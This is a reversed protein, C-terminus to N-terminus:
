YVKKAACVHTCKMFIRVTYVSFGCKNGKLHMIEFHINKTTWKVTQLRISLSHFWILSSRYTFYIFSITWITTQAFTHNYAVAKSKFTPLCKIDCCTHTTIGLVKNVDHLARSTVFLVYSLCAITKTVSHSHM